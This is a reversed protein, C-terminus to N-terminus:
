RIADLVRQEDIGKPLPLQVLIGNVAPNANYDAVVQTDVCGLAGSDQPQLTAHVLESGNKDLSINASFGAVDM